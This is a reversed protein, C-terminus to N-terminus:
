RGRWEPVTVVSERVEYHLPADPVLQGKAWEVYREAEERTAFWRGSYEGWEHHWTCVRFGAVQKM